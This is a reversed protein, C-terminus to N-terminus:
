QHGQYLAKDTKPLNPNTWTQGNAWQVFLPACAPSATGLPFINPSVGYSKKIEVNPSFKGEDRVEAVMMSRAILGFDIIKIEEQTVNMYDIYLTGSPSIPAQYYSHAWPDRWYYGRGYYPYYGPSYGTYGGASGPNHEARCQLVKVPPHTASGQSAAAPAALALCCLVVVTVKM